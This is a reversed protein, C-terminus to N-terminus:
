VTLTLSPFGHQFLNVTSESFFEEHQHKKYNALHQEMKQLQHLFCMDIDIATLQHILDVSMGSRLAQFHDLDWCPPIKTVINDLGPESCATTKKSIYNKVEPLPIGLALKAALFALPTDTVCQVDHLLLIILTTLLVN